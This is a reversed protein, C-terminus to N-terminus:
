GGTHKKLIAKFSPKTKAFATTLYEYRLHIVRAYPIGSTGVSGIIRRGEARAPRTTISRQLHGELKGHGPTLEAKAALEVRMTFEDVAALVQATKRALVQDGKWNRPM